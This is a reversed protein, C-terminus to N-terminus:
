RAVTVGHLVDGMRTPGPLCESGLVGVFVFPRYNRFWVAIFPKMDANDDLPRLHADKYITCARRAQHDLFQAITNVSRKAQPDALARATM